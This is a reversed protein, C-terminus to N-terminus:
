VSKTPENYLEWDARMMDAANLGVEWESGDVLAIFGMYPKSDGFEYRDAAIDGEVFRVFDGQPWERIRVKLGERIQPMLEEIKM